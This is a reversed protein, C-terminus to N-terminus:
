ASSPITLSCRWAGSVGLLEPPQSSWCIKPRAFLLLCGSDGCANRRVRVSPWRTGPAATIWGDGLAADSGLKLFLMKPRDTADSSPNLRDGVAWERPRGPDDASSENLRAPVPYTAAVPSIKPADLLIFCLTRWCALTADWGQARFRAGSGFGSSWVTFAHRTSLARTTTGAAESTSRTERARGGPDGLVSAAQQAALSLEAVVRQLARKADVPALQELLVAEEPLGVLASCELDDDAGESQVVGVRRSMEVASSGVADSVGLSSIREWGAWSRARGSSPTTISGSGSSSLAGPFSVAAPRAESAWRIRLRM